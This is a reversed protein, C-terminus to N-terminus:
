QFLGESTYHIMTSRDIPRKGRFGKYLKNGRKQVYHFFELCITKLVRWGDPITRLKGVGYFRNGEFSPVEVIKLKECVARLYIATDIEFGNINNLDLQELFLALFCPLWLV